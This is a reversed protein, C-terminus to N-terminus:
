ADFKMTEVRQLQAFWKGAQDPSHWAVGSIHTGAPHEILIGVFPIGSKPSSTSWGNGLTIGTRGEIRYDPAYDNEREVPILTMPLHDAIEQFIAHESDGQLLARIVHTTM